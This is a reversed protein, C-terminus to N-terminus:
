RCLLPSKIRLNQTRFGPPAREVVPQVAPLDGRDVGGSGDGSSLSPDFSQGTLLGSVVAVVTLVTPAAM